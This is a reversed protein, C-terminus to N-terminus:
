DKMLVLFYSGSLMMITDEEVDSKWYIMLVNNYDLNIYLETVNDSGEEFDFTTSDKENKISIFSVPIWNINDIHWQKSNINM